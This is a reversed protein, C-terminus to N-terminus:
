RNPSADRSCSITEARMLRNGASTTKIKNISDCLRDEKEQSVEFEDEEHISLAPSVVAPISTKSKTKHDSSNTTNQLSPITAQIISDEGPDTNVMPIVSKYDPEEKILENDTMGVNDGNNREPNQKPISCQIDILTESTSSNSISDAIGVTDCKLTNDSFTKTLEGNDDSKIDEREIEITIYDENQFLFHCFINFKSSVLNYVIQELGITIMFKRKNKNSHVEEVDVMNPFAPPTVRMPSKMMLRIDKINTTNVNRGTGTDGYCVDLLAQSEDSSSPLTLARQM